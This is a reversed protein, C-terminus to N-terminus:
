NKQLRELQKERIRKLLLGWNTTTLRLLADVVRRLKLSRTEMVFEKSGVNLKVNTSPGRILHKTSIAFLKQQKVDLKSEYLLIARIQQKDM